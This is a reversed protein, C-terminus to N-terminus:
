RAHLVAKALRGEASLRRTHAGRSMPELNERRLDLSDGNRYRVVVDTGLGLIVHSLFNASTSCDGRVVSVHEGSPRRRVHGRWVYSRLLYADCDDVTVIHGSQLKFKKTM